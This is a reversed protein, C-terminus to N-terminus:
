PKKGARKWQSYGSPLEFLAADLPELKVSVLTNTATRGKAAIVTKIVMGPLRSLEPQANRHPGTDNFKDVKALETKIADYDPFKKAVWLTETLGHAGSWSYIETDHGNVTESRGTAVAPAAPRDMDNTGGTYKREESMEWRIESGFKFLYTKNTNLLTYSDRTKLNVIISLGDDPQDLRMKDGHLKLIATRTRNTDSSQQELVLDARLV